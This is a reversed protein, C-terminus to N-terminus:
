CMWQLPYPSLGRQGVGLQLNRIQNGIKLFSKIYICKFYYDHGREARGKVATAEKGQIADSTHNICTNLSVTMGGRKKEEECSYKEWGLLEKGISILWVYKLELGVSVHKLHIKYSLERGAGSTGEWHSEM